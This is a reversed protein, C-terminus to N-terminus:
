YRLPINSITVNNEEVNIYDLNNLLMLIGKKALESKNTPSLKVGEVSLKDFHIDLFPVIVGNSERFKLLGTKKIEDFKEEEFSFVIRYEEESSFSPHKFLLSRLDIIDELLDLLENSFDSSKKNDWAKNFNYIHRKIYEKQIEEDYNVKYYYFNKNPLNKILSELNFKINCGSKNATKTYYNWMNLSDDSISFSCVFYNRTNKINFNYSENNEIENRICYYFTKNLNEKEDELCEKFLNYTYYRESKDNLFEYHTFWLSNNNLIEKLSTTATYHHVYTPKTFDLMEDIGMSNDVVGAIIKLEENDEILDVKQSM